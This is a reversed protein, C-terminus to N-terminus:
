LSIPYRGFEHVADRLAFINALPIRWPMCCVPTVMFRGYPGLRRINEKVRMAVDEAGGNELEGSVFVSAGSIVIDPYKERFRVWEDLDLPHSGNVM